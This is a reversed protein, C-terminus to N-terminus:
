NATLRKPLLNAEAGAGGEVRLLAYPFLDTARTADDFNFGQLNKLSTVPRNNVFLVLEYENLEFGFNYTFIPLSEPNAEPLLIEGDTM